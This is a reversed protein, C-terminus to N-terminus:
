CPKSVSRQAADRASESRFVRDPFQSCVEDMTESMVDYIYVKSESPLGEALRQLMPKGMAGVGIFGITKFEISDSM